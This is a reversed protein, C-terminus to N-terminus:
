LAALLRRKPISAGHWALMLSIVTDDHEGEPARYRLPRDSATRTAEFAALEMQLVKDDLLRLDGQEIALSLSEVALKKSASTTTFPQIPMGARELQEALPEGMANLEPVVVSPKFRDYVAQVRGLQLQYDIQNFRDIAVHEMTTCDIVTIVTWDNHKAWDIGMSYEHNDIARGQPEATTAERLKRFVTGTDERILALAEQEFLLEGLLPKLADIRYPPITPNDYTTYHYAVFGPMQGADANRWLKAGWNQGKPVGLFCAWGGFDILAPAVYETWVAEPMLTFEDLVAGRLGEGALSTVNEATRMWIEAGNPLHIERDNERIKRDWSQGVAEYAKRTYYKLLRWARKLSASRWSLGIWWYIGPLEQAGILCREVGAITKGWRRGALVVPSEQCTIVSRQGDSHPTPLPITTTTIM